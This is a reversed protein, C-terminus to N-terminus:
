MEAIFKKRLRSVSSPSIELIDAVDRVPLKESLRLLKNKFEPDYEKRTGLRRQEGKKAGLKKGAKQAAELGAKIRASIHEREQAAVLAKASVMFQDMTNSFEITGQSPVEIDVGKESITQLINLTDLFDRSLRSLEFTIIKHIVGDRVNNMMLNFSPRNKSVGSRAKDEYWIIKAKPYRNKKIWAEIAAKQAKTEQNKTSVRLYVGIVVRGKKVTGM